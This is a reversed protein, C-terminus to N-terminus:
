DNNDFEKLAVKMLQSMAIRIGKRDAPPDAHKEEHVWQKIEDEIDTMM